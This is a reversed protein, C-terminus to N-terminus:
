DKERQKLETELYALRAPKLLARLLQKDVVASRRTSKKKCPANAAKKDDAPM